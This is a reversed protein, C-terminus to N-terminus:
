ISKLTFSCVSQLNQLQNTSKKHILMQSHSGTSCIECCKPVDMFLFLESLIMSLRGTSCQFSWIGYRKEYFSNPIQYGDYLNSM